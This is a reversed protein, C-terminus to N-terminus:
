NLAAAGSVIESIEQTIAAQRAQNYFLTLEDLLEGANDNANRMAFMRASHESAVSEIFAHYVAAAIIQPIIQALVEKDNPEFTYEKFEDENPIGEDSNEILLNKYIEPLVPILQMLYPKYTISSKFETFLVSIKTYDGKEFKEVMMDRIILFEESSSKESFDIFSAVIKLNSRRASKESQKGITICDVEENRNKTYTALAKSINSNYAGALGKNSSIVLILERGAEVEKALLPHKLHRVNAINSLLELAYKAYSRGRNAMETGRKMKAVSVMEMTKTIKKINNISKIKQRIAKTDTAM